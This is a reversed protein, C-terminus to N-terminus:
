SDQRRRVYAQAKMQFVVSESGNGDIGRGAAAFAPSALVALFVAAVAAPLRQKM